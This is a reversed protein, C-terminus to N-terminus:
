AYSIAAALQLLCDSVAMGRLVTLISAAEEKIEGDAAEQAAFSAVPAWDRMIDLYEDSSLERIVEDEKEFLTGIGRLEEVKRTDTYGPFPQQQQGEGGDGAGAGGRHDDEEDDNDNPYYASPKPAAPPPPGFGTAHLATTSAATAISPRTTGRTKARRRSSTATGEAAAAAAAAAVAAAASTRDLFPSSTAHHRSPCSTWYGRTEGTASPSLSGPGATFGLCERKVLLLGCVLWLPFRRTVM